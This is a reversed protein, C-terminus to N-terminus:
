GAKRLDRAYSWWFCRVIQRGGHEHHFSHKMVLMIITRTNMATPTSPLTQWPPFQTEDGVNNDDEYEYSNANVALNAV